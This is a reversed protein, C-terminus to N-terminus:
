NDKPTSAIQEKAKEVDDDLKKNVESRIDNEEPLPFSFDMAKLLKIHELYQEYLSNRYSEAVIKIKEIEKQSESVKGEAEDIKEQCKGKASDIIKSAENKAQQVINEALKQAKVIVARITDEDNHLESYKVETMHLENNLESNKKYLETYQDILFEIYEDVESCSYGRMTKNFAKNKLEHPAIM